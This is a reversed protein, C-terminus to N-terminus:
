LYINIRDKTNRFYKRNIIFYLGRGVFLVSDSHAATKHPSPTVTLVTYGDSTLHEATSIACGCTTRMNLPLFIVAVRDNDRNKLRAGILRLSMAGRIITVIGGVIIVPLAIVTLATFVIFMTGTQVVAFIWAIAQFIISILRFRRFIILFREWFGYATTDKIVTLLFSFYNNKAYRRRSAVAEAARGQPSNHGMHRLSALQHEKREIEARLRNEERELFTDRSLKGM